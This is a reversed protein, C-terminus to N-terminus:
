IKFISFGYSLFVIKKGKSFFIELKLMAMPGWGMGHKSVLLSAYVLFGDNLFIHNVV